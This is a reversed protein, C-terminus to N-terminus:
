NTKYRKSEFEVSYREKYKPMQIKNDSSLSILNQNLRLTNIDTIAM